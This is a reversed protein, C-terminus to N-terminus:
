RVPLNRSGPTLPGGDVAKVVRFLAGAVLLDLAFSLDPDQRSM